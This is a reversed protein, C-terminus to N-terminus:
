KDTASHQHLGSLLTAGVGLEQLNASSDIKPSSPSSVNELTSANLQAKYNPGLSDELLHIISKFDIHKHGQALFQKGQHQGALM